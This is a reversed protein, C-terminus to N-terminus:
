GGHARKGNDLAEAIMALVEQSTLATGAVAGSRRFRKIQRTQDPSTRGYAHAESEGPKQHKIEAGIARGEVIILLDPFGKTQMPNGHIKWMEAGPYVKLVDKRIQKVLATENTPGPM